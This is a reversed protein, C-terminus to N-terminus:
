VTAYCLKSLSQNLLLKSVTMKALGTRNYVSTIIDTM